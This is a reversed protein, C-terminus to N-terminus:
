NLKDVSQMMAAMEARTVAQKPRFTGDKYGSIIGYDALSRIAEASWRDRGVDSFKLTGSTSPTLELVRSLMVALEERTVPQNPGFSGDARGGIMGEQKAIRIDAAAWHNAPVDWYLSTSSRQDLTAGTMRVLVAAAQARSLSSNPQFLNSATGTMWGKDSVFQISSEAWHGIIDRFTSNNIWATYYDWISDAEENLSWNGAGKLDYKQVLSLKAQISRDNEYWVTYSGATLKKGHVSTGPDGAPIVFSAKASQSNEDFVKKGGYKQVLQDVVTNQIGLGKISGDSKWYRGYFPIGIVIKESPVYKLAQQISKEVFPLSSVPGPDSGEYSEDYTMFMLYDSAKGLAAYDFSGFWDGEWGEPNAAVAVSVEKQAPIAARLMQVFQTFADKEKGTINEIDVNVGDLNYTEIAKAIQKVLAEKNNMAAIGVNRDWHNSLFPVVKMGEQHMAAIFNKDLAATLQLSGDPNLDFYSPSVMDLSGNTQNVAEIYKDPHGFYIYSMVFKHNAAEAAPSSTLTLGILSLGIIAGKIYKKM